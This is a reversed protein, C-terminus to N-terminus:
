WQERMGPCLVVKVATLAPPCINVEEKLPASAAPVDNGSHIRAAIAEGLADAARVLVERWDDGNSLGADNCDWIKRSVVYVWATLQFADM